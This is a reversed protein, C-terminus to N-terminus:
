YPSVLVPAAWATWDTEHEAFLAWRAEVVAMDVGAGEILSECVRKVMIVNSLDSVEFQNTLVPGVGLSVLNLAMEVNSSRGSSELITLRLSRQDRLVMALRDARVFTVSPSGGSSLAVQPYGDESVIHGFFYLIDYDNRALHQDLSALTIDEPVFNMIAAEGAATSLAERKSDIDLEPLSAPSSFAVLIRLPRRLITEPARRPVNDVSRVVQTLRSLALFRQDERFYLLEWPLCRLPAPGINLRIRIGTGSQLANQMSAQFFASSDLPFALAFLEVGIERALAASDQRPTRAVLLRPNQWGSLSRELSRITRKDLKSEGEWQGKASASVIVRHTGRSSGIIRVNFPIYTRSTAEGTSTISSREGGEEKGLPHVRNILWLRDAHDIQAGELRTTTDLHSALRISAGRLDSGSFDFGRLDAGEFHMGRLDRGM